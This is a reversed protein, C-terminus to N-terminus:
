HKNIPRLRAAYYKKAVRLAEPDLKKKILEAGDFVVELASRIIGVDQEDVGSLAEEPLANGDGASGDPGHGAGGGDLGAVVGLLTPTVMRCTRVEEASKCAGCIKACHKNMYATRKECEGSKHWYLCNEHADM